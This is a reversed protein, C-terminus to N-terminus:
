LLSPLNPYKITVPYDNKKTGKMVSHMCKGGSSVLYPSCQTLLRPHSPIM